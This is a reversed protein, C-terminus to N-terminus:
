YVQFEYMSAWGSPVGSVTIRVYRATATFAQNQIQAASTNTTLDAKTTWTKKDASVDVKYKYAAGTKYWTEEVGTISKSAGLDVMIWQPLTADVAAWRTTTSGDVANAYGNGAQVSSATDVKSLALNTKTTGAATASYASKGAANYAQVRYTYQTNSKLGVDTYTVVNAGLTAIVAYTTTGGGMRELYFGTENSANDKWTIKLQSASVVTVALTSPAAPVANSQTTATVTNSYDSPIAGQMSIAKVRYQYTTGATLGADSYTTANAATQKIESFNQGSADSREISYGDEGKSNDKWSLKIQTTSVVSAALTTPAVLVLTAYSESSYSSKGSANYACVRYYYSHGDIVGTNQYTKVNAGVSGIQTYNQGYDGSREIYFGTENTSNDTWSLNIQNSGVVTASLYTPMGPTALTTVTVVNSYPSMGSTNYAFVRYKYTTSSSLGADIFYPNYSSVSDIKTWTAGNDKSREIGFGSVRTGTSGWSLSLEGGTVSSAALNVPAPQIPEAIVNVTVYDISNINGDTANLAFVYTGKTTFLITTQLANPSIINSTAPGSSQRWLTSLPNPLGDDAAFGSLNAADNVYVTQTNGAEVLPAGADMAVPILQPVAWSAYDCTQGNGADSVTLKVSSAGTVNAVALRCGSYLNLVPSEYKKVGDAYVRFIVDGVTGECFRNLDDDIGVNARFSSYQKAANFTLSSNAYTGLGWYYPTYNIQIGVGDNAASSGNSMNWEVPGLGNTVASWHSDTSSFMPMITGNNAVGLNMEPPGYLNFSLINMLGAQDVGISFASRASNLSTGADYGNTILNQLFSYGLGPCSFSPGAGGGFSERTAAVTGVGCQRFIQSQINDFRDDGNLCSAEYLFVPNTANLQSVYNNDLVEAAVGWNGHTFWMVVGPKLTNWAQVTGAASNGFKEVPPIISHVESLPKPIKFFKNTDDYIRYYEWINPELIGSRLQEGVAANGGAPGSDTPVISVLATKRWERNPDVKYQILRKLDADLYLIESHFNGSTFAIRGVSVEAYNDAGGSVTFDTYKGYRVTPSTLNWSGSLEAYYFDTPADKDASDKPDFLAAYRPWTEKMPVDGTDTNPCGILLVDMIHMSSYNAQLWARINNARQDATTAAITQGGNWLAETAVTVTLYPNKQLQQIYLGLMTSSDVVKQTTIIAYTSSYGGSMPMAFQVSQTSASFLADGDPAYNDLESSNAVKGKLFSEVRSKPAVSSQTMAAMANKSAPVGAVTLTGSVLKKIKKTVPNYSYPWVIIDVLGYQRMKGVRVTGLNSIPFFANTGYIGVDKGNVITKGQPWIVKKGATIPPTPAVDWTGAVDAMVPNEITVNVNALNTNPPAVVTVTYSPLAPEGAKAGTQSGSFVAIGNQSSIGVDRYPLNVSIQGYALLAGCLPLVAFQFLKM